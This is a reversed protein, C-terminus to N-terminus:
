RVSNQGKEPKSILDNTQPFSFNILHTISQIIVFQFHGRGGWSEAELEGTGWKPQSKFSHSANTETRQDVPNNTNGCPHRYICHHKWRHFDIWWQGTSCPCFWVQLFLGSKAGTEHNQVLSSGGWKCSAATSNRTWATFCESFKPGHESIKVSDTLIVPLDAFNELFVVLAFCCINLRLRQDPSLQTYTSRKEVWM